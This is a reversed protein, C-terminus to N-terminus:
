RAISMAAMRARSEAMVSPGHDRCPESTYAGAVLHRQHATAVAAGDDARLGVGVRLEYSVRRTVNCREDVKNLVLGSATACFFRDAASHSSGTLPVVLGSKVLGAASGPWM